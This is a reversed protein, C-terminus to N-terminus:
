AHHEEAVSSSPPPRRCGNVLKAAREATRALRFAAHRRWGSLPVTVRVVARRQAWLSNIMPHEEVACSDMWAVDVRELVALNDLQLLVGPSFRAFREDFATKFSFAGPPAYLNVLMAIAVGDLDLRLLELQGAARGGGIVERFFRETAPTAALASGARGKWGAEELRLFDDCWAGVDDEPQLRRLAVQGQESLRMELRKLEKRKKKRVTAEYYATPSLESQLLAREIRHVVDCPRGLTAAAQMLACHVPGNEVLGNVHLLGVAWRTADLTQLIASWAERERGARLLPTGLFSHHHLCNQVNRLPLRGYRPLVAVAFLGVLERGSPGDSWVRVVRAGEAQPLHAGAKVFWREAFVNPESASAALDDWARAFLADDTSLPVVDFSIGSQHAAARVTTRREAITPSPMDALTYATGTPQM